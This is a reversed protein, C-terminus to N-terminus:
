AGGRTVSSWNFAENYPNLFESIVSYSVGSSHIVVGVCISIVIASGLNRILHFVATAEGLKATPLTGLSDRNVAGM